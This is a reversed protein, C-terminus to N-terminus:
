FGGGGPMWWTMMVEYYKYQAENYEYIAMNLKRQCDDYKPIAIGTYHTVGGRPPIDTFREIANTMCQPPCPRGPTNAMTAQGWWFLGESMYVEAHGHPTDGAAKDTAANTMHGDGATMHTDGEALKWEPIGMDLCFDRTAQASQKTNETYIRNSEVTGKKMSSEMFAGYADNYAQQNAQTPTVLPCPDGGHNCAWAVLNSMAILLSAVFVM